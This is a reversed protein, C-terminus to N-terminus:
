LLKFQLNWAAVLRGEAFVNMINKLGSSLNRSMLTSRDAVANSISSSAYSIFCLM